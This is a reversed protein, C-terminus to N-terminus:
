LHIRVNEVVFRLFDEAEMMDTFFRHVCSWDSEMSEEDTQSYKPSFQLSTIGRLLAMYWGYMCPNANNYEEPKITKIKVFADPFIEEFKEAVLALSGNIMTNAEEYNM